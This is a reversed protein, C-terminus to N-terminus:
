QKFFANVGRVLGDAQNRLTGQDHAASQNGLEIDVSPISSYSTQTLDIDMNGDGRIKSGVSELGDVLARGLADDREWVESVPYMGKIGDPVSCYFCGKDYDLGDGDWHLAIHCDAVNNCIVTRAVNDLQVDEGDRIMLVDYGEDLLKDRLIRAMQLTVTSERTGDSFSMGGSVATAKVSGASTSGGTTKASRDPHCYTSSSEGGSTGHGANVGVIIDKRNETAVYMVACGSHIVSSDAFEWDGQLYIEQGNKYESATQSATDDTMATEDIEGDIVELEEENQAQADAQETFSDRDTNVIQGTMTEDPASMDNQGDQEQIQESINSQADTNSSKKSTCASLCLTSMGICVALLLVKKTRMIM